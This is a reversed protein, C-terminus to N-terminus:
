SDFKLKLGCQVSSEFHRVCVHFINRTNPMATVKTQMTHM